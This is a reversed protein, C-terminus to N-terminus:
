PRMRVSTPSATGGHVVGAPVQDLVSSTAHCQLCDSRWPHSSQMGLPGTPGHCALCDSRMLTSHPVIPPAGIWAREGGEPAPLGCFDNGATLVAVLLGGAGLPAAGAQEVHCQTCNLLLAHPMRSARRDEIALGPGHCAICNAASDQDIAHPVVPPAGNYARRTAREALAARRQAALVLPDESRLAAMSFPDIQPQVLSVLSNTWDRNPGFDRARMQSYATAPIVPPRPQRSGGEVDSGRVESAAAQPGPSGGVQLPGTSSDTVRNGALGVFYGVVAMSIVGVLVLQTAPRLGKSPGQEDVDDSSPREESM